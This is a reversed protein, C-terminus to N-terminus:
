TRSRKTADQFTFRNADVGSWLCYHRDFHNTWLTVHQSEFREHGFQLNHNMKPRMQVHDIQQASAGFINDSTLVLKFDQLMNWQMLLWWWYDDNDDCNM